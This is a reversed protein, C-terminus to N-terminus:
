ELVSLPISSDNPVPPMDPDIFLNKKPLFIYRLRLIPWYIWLRFLIRVATSLIWMFWNHSVELLYM